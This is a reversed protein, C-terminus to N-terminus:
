IDPKGAVQELLELADLARGTQADGLRATLRSQADRWAALAVGLTDQGRASLELTLGGRGRGGSALILGAQRLPKLTRSLTSPDLDLAAALGRVPIAGRAAIMCLANFQSTDVGAARLARDYHRSIRRALRRARLALCVLTVATADATM